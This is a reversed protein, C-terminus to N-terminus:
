RIIKDLGPRRNLNRDWCLCWQEWLWDQIGSGKPRKPIKGDIVVAVLVHVDQSYEHFPKLGTMLEQFKLATLISFWM